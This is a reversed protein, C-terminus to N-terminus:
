PLHHINLTKARRAPKRKSSTRTATVWPNSLEGIRHSVFIVFFQGWKLRILGVCSVEVRDNLILFRELRCVTTGSSLQYTHSFFLSSGVVVRLSVCKVSILQLHFVISAINEPLKHSLSICLSQSSKTFLFIWKKRLM